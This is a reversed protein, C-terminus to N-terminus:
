FIPKKIKKRLTAMMLKRRETNKVKARLTDWNGEFVDDCFGWRKAEDAPLWVDIQGKIKDKLMARIQSEEWDKFAGQSKLRAIYILFMRENDRQRQVNATNAEQETGSYSWKGMHFMYQAPPRILSKDAALLILSTMSRASKAALITVPNQCTLIAGFMQMGEEWNGGDSALKVLIPRVPDIASLIGLNNEFRDAMKYDVGPEDNDDSQSSPDGGVYITFTHRDVRYSHVDEPFFDGMLAKRTHEDEQQRAVKKSKRVTM